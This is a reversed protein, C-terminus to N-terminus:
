KFIYHLSRLFKIAPFWHIRKRFLTFAQLDFLPYFPLCAWCTPLRATIYVLPWLTGTLLHLLKEIILILRRLQEGVEQSTFLTVGFGHYCHQSCLTNYATSYIQLKPVDIVPEFLLISFTSQHFVLSYLAADCPLAENMQPKFDASCILKHHVIIM